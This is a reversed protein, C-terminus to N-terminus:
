RWVIDDRGNGPAGVLPSLVQQGLNSERDFAMADGLLYLDFDARGNL